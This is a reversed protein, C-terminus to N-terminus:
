RKRARSAYCQRARTHDGDRRPRGAVELAREARSRAVMLASDRAAEVDGILFWTSLM